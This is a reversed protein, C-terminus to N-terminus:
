FRAKPWDPGTTLLYPKGERFTLNGLNPPLKALQRLLRARVRKSPDGVLAWITPGLSLTNVRRMRMEALAVLLVLLADGVVSAEQLFEYPISPVYHGERSKTLFSKAPLKESISMWDDNPDSTTPTQSTFSSPDFATTMAIVMVAILFLLFLTPPVM